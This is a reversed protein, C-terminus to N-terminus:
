SLFTFPFSLSSTFYFPNVSRYFFSLPPGTPFFFSSTFIPFSSPCTSSSSISNLSFPSPSYSPYTPILSNLSHPFVFLHLSFLPYPSLLLALLLLIFPVIFLLLSSFSHPFLLFHTLSPALLLLHLHVFPLCFLFLVVFVFSYARTAVVCVRVQQFQGESVGDRYFIIRQPKHRTSRYFQILLERVMAALEAIIEQLSHPLPSM